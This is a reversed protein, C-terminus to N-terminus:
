LYTVTTARNDWINDFNTDGDAFSFTLIGSSDVMRMIRWIASSTNASSGVTAFGFYITGSTTTTDIIPPYVTSYDATPMPTSLSAPVYRDTTEDYVHPAVADANKRKPIAM